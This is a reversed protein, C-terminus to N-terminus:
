QKVLTIKDGSVKVAIGSQNVVFIALDTIVSKGRGCNEDFFALYEEYKPNTRYDKLKFTNPVHEFIVLDFWADWNARQPGCAVSLHVKGPMGQGSPKRFDADIRLYPKPPLEYGMYKGQPYDGLAYVMMIAVLFASHIRPKSM